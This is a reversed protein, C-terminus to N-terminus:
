RASRAAPVVAASLVFGAPGAVTVVEIPDPRGPVRARVGGPLRGGSDPGIRVEAPDVRLGRGDAKLVAEIRTWGAIDPEGGPFLGALGPAGADRELDVGVASVAELPAAAAVVLGGASSVSLALPAGHALPPGHDEGCLACVSTVGLAAGPALDSALHVLLMRGTAFSDARAGDMAAWRALQARGLASVVAPDGATARAWALRVPGVERTTVIV